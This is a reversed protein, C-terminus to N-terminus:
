WRREDDDGHRSVHDDVPGGSGPIYRDGRPRYPAPGGRRPLRGGRGGGRGGGGRMERDMAQQRHPPRIGEFVERGRDVFRDDDQFSYRNIERDVQRMTDRTYFGRMDQLRRRALTVSVAEFYIVPQTMTREGAGDVGSLHPQERPFPQGSRSDTPAGEIGTATTTARGMLQAASSSSTISNSQLLAEVDNGDGSPQYVVEWRLGTRKERAHEEELEIWPRVKDVPIFDVFLAKRNSEKPWVQGHLNNRVRVATSTSDFVVFAHTRITDLYFRAIVDDISASDSPAALEVLFTQLDIERLPRMLNNIYIASTSTHFAPEVEAASPEADVHAEKTAAIPATEPARTELAARDPMSVDQGQDDQVRGAQAAPEKAGDQAIEQARRRKVSEEKPTLSESRRKRKLADVAIESAMAETADGNKVSDAVFSGNPAADPVVPETTASNSTSPGHAEHSQGRDDQASHAHGPTGDAHSPSEPATETEENATAVADDENSAPSLKSEPEVPKDQADSAPKRAKTSNLEVPETGQLPEVPDPEVTKDSSAEHTEDDQGTSQPDSKAQQQPTAAEDDDADLRAVLEAKLGAQALGRRKLEAKLETVKLKTWDSM